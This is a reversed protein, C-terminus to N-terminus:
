ELGDACKQSRARIQGGIVLVVVAALGALIMLVGPWGAIPVVAGVLQATIMTGLQYSLAVLAIPRASAAQPYPAAAWENATPGVVGYGYAFAFGAALAAGVILGLFGAIYAVLGTTIVLWPAVQQLRKLGRWRILCLIVAFPMWFWVVSGVVLVVFGSAFGYGIGSVAMALCPLWIRRDRLLALYGASNPPASPSPTLALNLPMALLAPLASLGFFGIDGYHNFSWAGLSPGAFTPLLLTLSYLAIARVRELEPANARALLTGAPNILGGGLGRSLSLALLPATSWGCFPMGLLSALSIAFGALMTRKAGIRAMLTGSLAAAGILGLSYATFIWGILPLPLGHIKFVAALATVQSSSAGWALGSALLLRYDRRALLLDAM